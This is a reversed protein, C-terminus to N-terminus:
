DVQQGLFSKLLYLRQITLVNLLSLSVSSLDQDKFIKHLATQLTKIRDYTMLNIKKKINKLSGWPKQAATIGPDPVETKLVPM